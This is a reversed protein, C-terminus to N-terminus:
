ATAVNFKNCSILEYKGYQLVNRGWKFESLHAYIIKTIFYKNNYDGMLLYDYRLKHWRKLAWM